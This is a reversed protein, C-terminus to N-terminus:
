TRQAPRYGVGHLVVGSDVHEFKGLVAAAEFAGGFKEVLAVAGLGVCLACLILDIALVVNLFATRPTVVFTVM